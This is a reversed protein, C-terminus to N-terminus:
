VTTQLDNAVFVPVSGKSPAEDQRRVFHLALQAGPFRVEVWRLDGPGVATDAVVECGFKDVCFAKARLQDFVPLEAVSVFM